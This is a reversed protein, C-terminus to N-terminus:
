RLFAWWISLSTFFIVSVVMLVIVSTPLNGEGDDPLRRRVQVLLNRAFPVDRALLALGLALVVLGPGPLVLLILGIVVLISGGLVRAARRWLQQKAEDVTEEHVGTAFEADIAADELRELRPLDPHEHYAHSGDTPEPQDDHSPSM